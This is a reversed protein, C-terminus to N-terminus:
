GHKMPLIVVNIDMKARAAIIFFICIFFWRLRTIVFGSRFIISLLKDIYGVGM